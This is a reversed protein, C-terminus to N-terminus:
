AAAEIRKPRNPMIKHWGFRRVGGETGGEVEDDEYKGKWPDILARDPVVVV